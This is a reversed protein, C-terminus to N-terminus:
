SCMRSSRSPLRAEARVKRFHTLNALFAGAIGKLSIGRHEYFSEDETAVVAKIFWPSVQNLPVQRVRRNFTFLLEGSDAYISVGAQSRLADPDPPIRPLTTVLWVFGLGALLVADAAVIIGTRTWDNRLSSRLM